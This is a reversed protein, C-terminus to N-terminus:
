LEDRKKVKMGSSDTGVQMDHLDQAAGGLADVTNIFIDGAGKAVKKADDGFDDVIKQFGIAKGTYDLVKNVDQSFDKNEDRTFAQGFGDIIKDTVSREKREKEAQEEMKEAAAKINAIHANYDLIKHHGAELRRINAEQQKFNEGAQTNEGNNKFQANFDKWSKEVFAKDSLINYRVNNKDIAYSRLGLDNRLVEYSEDHSGSREDRDIIDRLFNFGRDIRDFADHMKGRDNATAREIADRLGSNSSDRGDNRDRGVERDSNRDIIDRFGRDIRDFADHMKGRDNATAREIADRLGSNSSDRGENRDNGRDNGRDNDLADWVSAEVEPFRFPDNVKMWQNASEFTEQVYDMANELYSDM